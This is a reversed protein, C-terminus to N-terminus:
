LVVNLQHINAVPPKAKSSNAKITMSILVNLAALVFGTFLKLVSYGEGRGEGRLPSPSFQSSAKKSHPLISSLVKIKKFAPYLTSFTSHLHQITAM